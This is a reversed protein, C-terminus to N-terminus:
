NNPLQLLVLNNTPINISNGFKLYTGDLALAWFGNRKRKRDPIEDESKSSEREM